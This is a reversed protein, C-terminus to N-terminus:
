TSTRHVGESDHKLLQTYEPIISRMFRIFLRVDPGQLLNVHVRTKGIDNGVDRRIGDLRSRLPDTQGNELFPPPDDEGDLVVPLAHRRFDQRAGEIREIGFGALVVLALDPHSKREHLLGAVGAAALDPEVARGADSRREDTGELRVVDVQRRHAVEDRGDEAEEVVRAVEIEFEGM